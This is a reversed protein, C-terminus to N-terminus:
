NDRELFIPEELFDLFRHYYNFDIEYTIPQKGRCVTFLFYKLVLLLDKSPPYFVM